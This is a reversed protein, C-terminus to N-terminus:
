WQQLLSCVGWFCCRLCSAKWTWIQVELGSYKAGALVKKNQPLCSASHNQTVAAFIWRLGPWSYISIGQLTYKTTKARAVSLLTLSAKEGKLVTKIWFHLQQIMLKSVNAVSLVLIQNWKNNDKVLVTDGADSTSLSELSVNWLIVSSKPNCPVKVFM